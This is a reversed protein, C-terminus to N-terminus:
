GQDRAVQSGEPGGGEGLAVKPAPHRGDARPAHQCYCWRALGESPPSAANDICEHPHHPEQCAPCIM